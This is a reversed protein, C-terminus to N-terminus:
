QQGVPLAWEGVPGPKLNRATPVLDKIIVGFIDKVVVMQSGYYSHGLLSTDIGSADVTDMQKMVFIESGSLGLRPSGNFSSSVRLAADNSSSYMTLRKINPTIKPLIQERFIDRDVDPAALIINDLNLVIGADKANAIAYTLARTGMSHAIIHIKGVKAKTQLDELVKTLHPITWESNEKDVPYKELSGQSPWSYSVTVGGFGIDYSLQGTRRMADGWAVNFGHVFMLLENAPRDAASDHISSYFKTADMLEPELLVIHKEQNEKFELKWWKPREVQGAVHVHPITVIAKGYELNSGEINRSTGYRQDAAPLTTRQRDTAFYVDVESFKENSDGPPMSESAAAAGEEPEPPPASMAAMRPKKLSYFYTLGLAGMAGFFIFLFLILWSRSKM